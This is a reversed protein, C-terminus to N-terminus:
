FNPPHTSHAPISKTESGVERYEWSWFPDDFWHHYLGKREVWEWWITTGDDTEIPLWAFCKNWREKKIIKDIQKNGEKWKM